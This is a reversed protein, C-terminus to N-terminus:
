RKIAKFREHNALFVDAVIPDFHKGRGARILDVAEDHTWAKKYVRESTVADYVDCLATIRAALPIEEGRLGHPYGSGDWKEHHHLAISQALALYSERGLQDRFQKDANALMEGGLVTHQQMAIDEAETLKGPKNLIEDPIAIKGIDHLLSANGIEKFFRANEQFYTSYPTNDKLRDALFEVFYKIRQLHEGTEQDRYEALAAVAGISVTQTLEIELMKKKAFRRDVIVLVVGLFFMAASESATHGIDWASSFPIHHDSIFATSIERFVPAMTLLVVVLLYRRWSPTM